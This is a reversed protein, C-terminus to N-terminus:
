KKWGEMFAGAVEETKQNQKQTESSINLQM